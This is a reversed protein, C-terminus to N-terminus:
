REVLNFDRGQFEGFGDEYFEHGGLEDLGRTESSIIRRRGNRLQGLRYTCWWGIGREEASTCLFRESRSAVDLNDAIARARARSFFLLLFFLLRRKVGQRTRAM